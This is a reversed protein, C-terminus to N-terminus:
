RGTVLRNYLTSFREGVNDSRVASALARKQGVLVVM